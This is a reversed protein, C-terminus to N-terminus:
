HQAVSEKKSVADEEPISTASKFQCYIGVAAVAQM